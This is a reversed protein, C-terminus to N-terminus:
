PCPTSWVVRLHAKDRHTGEVIKGRLEIHVAKVEYLLVDIQEVRSRLNVGFLHIYGVLEHLPLRAPMGASVFSCTRHLLPKTQRQVGPTSAPVVAVAVQRDMGIARDLDFHSRLVDAGPRAGRDKGDCGISKAKGDLRNIKLNAVVLIRRVTSGAAAAGDPAYARGCETSGGIGAILEERFHGWCQIRLGAIKFASM